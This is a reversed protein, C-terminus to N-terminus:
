VLMEVWNHKGGVVTVVSVQVDFHVPSFALFFGFSIIFSILPAFARVAVM